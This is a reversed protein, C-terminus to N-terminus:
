QDTTAPRITEFYHRVTERHGLPLPESDLVAEAQSRFKQYRNAYQRAADQEGEPAQLIESESPGEGKVGTLQEERRASDLKTADNGTPQGSAGEAWSQSPSQSKAVTQGGNKNGRCAGKCQALRNLQCAMCEGIKKRMGQQKCLRALECMGGKCQSSNQQQLGEQLEGLAKSLKGFQGPELKALYKKLNDAVARRERDSLRDPDIAELQESAQDYDEKEMAAAAAKMAESPQLASAVAKMQADIMELQMADRAKSIAQEMESLRAMLDREDISTTEMEEVLDELEKALTEIEPTQMEQHKLQEMEKLMTERLLSAQEAALPVPSVDSATQRVDAFLIIGLTLAAMTGAVLLAHQNVEVRVCDQPRVQRLHRLADDVQMQRVPDDDTEFQLATVARDKMAYYRDVVRAAADLSIPICLGVLGGVLGCGVAVAVIWAPHMPAVSLHVCALVVAAFCGIASGITAAHLMNRQRMRWRVALLVQKVTAAVSIEKKPVTLKESAM